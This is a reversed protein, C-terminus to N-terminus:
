KKKTGKKSGEKGLPDEKAGEAYAEAAATPSTIITAAIADLEPKLASKENPSLGMEFGERVDPDALAKIEVSALRETLFEKSRALPDDAPQLSSLDVPKRMSRMETSVQPQPAYPPMPTPKEEPLEIVVDTGYEVWDTFRNSDTVEHFHMCWVGPNTAKFDIDDIKVTLNPSSTQIKPIRVSLLPVFTRSQWVGPNLMELVRFHEHAEYDLTVWFGRDLLETITEDWYNGAIRSVFSHNAGMFIHTVKHQRALDVIENVPQLGIVFLTKKSYAPTHEVEPGIFYMINEHGDRKM